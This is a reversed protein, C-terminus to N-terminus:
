TRIVVTATASFGEGRREVDCFVGGVTDALFRDNDNYTDRREIRELYPAYNEFVSNNFEEPMFIQSAVIEDNGLFVKFHLHPTRGRYWSPYITRFTVRGDRDTFQTGRLFTEGAVSPSPEGTGPQREYGSYLGIADAHWLDFRANQLTACDRERLIEVTVDLLAGEADERIDSRVLAPDFYFPGEGSDPTLVCSRGTQQARATPTLLVATATSAALGLMIRRRARDIGASNWTPSSTDEM